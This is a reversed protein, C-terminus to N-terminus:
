LPLKTESAATESVVMSLRAAGILGADSGLLARAIATSRRARSATAQYVYSNRRVVEMMSPAFAEWADAVGGGIVYMPLNLLNILDALVIGLAAGARRFVERAPENGQQALQYIEKSTFERGGQMAQEMEPANGTAVAEMAMRRIATASSYQELCGRSGCNCPAGNQEVNMHGLEGAMGSMGHWIKGQFVIGGGVGTGLTIMCMDDAKAAAGLWKEGLAAANADNELIVRTGLRREIENQVPYDQWGPLNPSERLTGTEMEIIGPVGIGIGTLHNADSRFKATLQQIARCMDDIVLDRGRAVSTGTTIKELTKGQSDVAAIRLNTGGLDVGIAYATM